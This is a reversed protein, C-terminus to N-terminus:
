FLELIKDFSIEETEIIKGTVFENALFSCDASDNGIAYIKKYNEISIMRLASEVKSVQKPMVSLFLNSVRKVEFGLVSILEIAEFTDVKENFSVNVQTVKKLNDNFQEVYEDGDIRGVYKANKKDLLKFLFELKGSDFYFYKEENYYADFILSGSSFVFKECFPVIENVEIFDIFDEKTRGTAIILEIDNKKILSLDNLLQKKSERLLTGDFDSILLNKM